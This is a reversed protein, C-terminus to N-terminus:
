EVYRAGSRECVFAIAQRVAGYRHNSSLIEDDPMLDLSRLVTSIGATANEIFVLDEARAKLFAALRQAAARLAQPLVEKMFRDPNTEMARRWQDAAQLVVRPTAGFSGHNLFRAG